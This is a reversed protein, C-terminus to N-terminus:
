FLCFCYRQKVSDWLPAARVGNYVLAFFAKKVLLQSFIMMDVMRVLMSLTVMVTVQTDFVVLKASTPILDYSCHFKFFKVFIQHEDKESVFLCEYTNSYFNVDLPRTHSEPTVADADNYIDATYIYINICAYNSLIPCWSM